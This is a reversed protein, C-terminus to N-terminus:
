RKEKRWEAYNFSVGNATLYAVPHANNVAFVRGEPDAYINCVRTKAIWADFETRTKADCKVLISRLYIEPVCIGEPTLEAIPSLPWRSQYVKGNASICLPKHNKRAWSSVGDITRQSCGFVVEELPKVNLIVGKPTIFALADICCEVFIGESTIAYYDSMDKEAIWKRLKELDNVSSPCHSLTQELVEKTQRM